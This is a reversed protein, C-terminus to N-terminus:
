YFVCLWVCPPDSSTFSVRHREHPQILITDGKCMAVTRNNEYEIIANGELLVVFETEPQDYWDSIQGTSVIREIRVNKGEALVTTLEDLLPLEPLNYINMERVRDIVKINKRIIGYGVWYNLLIQLCSTNTWYFLAADPWCHVCADFVDANCIDSVLV